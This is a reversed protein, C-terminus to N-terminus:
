KLIELIKKTLVYDIYQIDSDRDYKMLFEELLTGKYLFLKEARDYCDKLELMDLDYENEM